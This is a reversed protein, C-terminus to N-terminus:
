ANKKTPYCTKCVNSGGRIVKLKRRRFRAIFREEFVVFRQENFVAWIAFGVLAMEFITLLISQLNM